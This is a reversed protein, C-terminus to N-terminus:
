KVWMASMLSASISSSLPLPVHGFLASWRWSRRRRRGDLGMMGDWPHHSHKSPSTVPKTIIQSHMAGIRVVYTSAILKYVWFEGSRNGFHRLRTKLSAVSEETFCPGFPSLPSKLTLCLFLSSPMVDATRLLAGFQIRPQQLKFLNARLRSWM